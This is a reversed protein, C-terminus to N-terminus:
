NQLTQQTLTAIKEFRIQVSLTSGTSRSVSIDFEEVNMLKIFGEIFADKRKILENTEVMSLKAFNVSLTDFLAKNIPKRKDDKKYRKRFADEGFINFSTTMSKKFNEKLTHIDEESMLKLSQMGKTLFTDLDPQYQKQHLYFGVYRAVFDCDLMRQSSISHNTATKFLEYGALEKIIQSPKGQNLANRIEQPTLMLGGTNIRKFINFKIELPTGPNIVYVSLSTEEIRSQLFQPLEDFTKGNYEKLYELGTLRLASDGKDIIFKKLTSLRQLGDVVEWVDYSGDFYFMPLPIRILLSEILQSMKDPKWLDPLRQYDPELNIRNQKMRKILLDLSPNQGRIDVKAPDFLITTDKSNEEPTSSEDIQEPLETHDESIDLEEELSQEELVTLNNARLSEIRNLSQIFKKEPVFFDEKLNRLEAEKLIIPWEYKLFRELNLIPNGKPFDYYYKYGEYYANNAKYYGKDTSIIHRYMEIFDARPETRFVIEINCGAVKEEFSHFVLGLSRTKNGGDQRQTFGIFIYDENGQFWHGNELRGYRNQQRLAFTFEPHEKRYELLRDLLKDSWYKILEIKTM